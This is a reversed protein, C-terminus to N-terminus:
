GHGVKKYSYATAGLSLFYTGLCIFGYIPDLGFCFGIMGWQATYFLLLYPGLWRTQRFDFKVVYDLVWEVVLYLILLGPLVIMWWEKNIVLYYVVAVGLPLALIGCVLGLYYELRSWDLPRSIMIVTIIINFFNAIIVVSLDVM